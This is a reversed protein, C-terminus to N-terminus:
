FKKELYLSSDDCKTGINCSPQFAHGTKFYVTKRCYGCGTKMGTKLLLEISEKYRYISQKKNERSCFCCFNTTKKTKKIYIKSDNQGRRM